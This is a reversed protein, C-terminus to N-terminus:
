AAKKTKKETGSKIAKFLTEAEFPKVVYASVGEKIAKTVEEKNREGTVLVVPMGSLKPNGRIKKLLDIGTLNPMHWDAIVLSFAAPNEELKNLAALGDVCEELFIFGVSNLHYRSLKRTTPSDDVVLIKASEPLGYSEEVIKKRQALDLYPLDFVVKSDGFLFTYKISKSVTMSAWAGLTASPVAISLKPDYEFGQEKFFSQLAVGLTQMMQSEAAKRVTSTMEKWSTDVIQYFKEQFDKDSFGLCIANTAEMTNLRLLAINKVVIPTKEQHFKPSEAVVDVNLKQKFFNLLTDKVLDAGPEKWLFEAANM